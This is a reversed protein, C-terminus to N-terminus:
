ADRKEWAHTSRPIPDDLHIACSPHPDRMMAACLGDISGPADPIEDRANILLRDRAFGTAAAASTACQLFGPPGCVYALSDPAAEFQRRLQQPSAAESGSYSEILELRGSFQRALKRLIGLFAVAQADRDFIVLRISCPTTLLAQKFMPFIPALGIGAAMFLAPGDERRLGFNGMPPGITVTMGPRLEDHCWNSVLGGGVRKITMQPPEAHSVLSSIAYYRQHTQGAITVRLPVFQGPKPRFTDLGAAPLVFEYSSCEHTERVVRTILATGFGALLSNTPTVSFVPMRDRTTRWPMAGEGTQRLRSSAIGPKIAMGPGFSYDHATTEHMAYFFRYIQPPTLGVALLQRTRSVNTENVGIM